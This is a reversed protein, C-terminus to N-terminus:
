LQDRKTGLVKRIGVEKARKSAAATSLNMFNICAILLMFIAVASFIYVYTIDGGQELESSASFDSALHIDTLPQLFLGVQNEKTFDSYSIGMSEKIQPGMYKEVVAPLKAEAEKIDFGKKLVVYNFFNSEMWSLNQAPPHGVMSGFIDFHFHSNKPVNGVVGSIVYDEGNDNFELIQGVPDMEGYYKQAMNQTIVVTNPET